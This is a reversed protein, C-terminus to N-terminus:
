RNIKRSIVNEGIPIIREKNRKGLVKLTGNQLDLDSTKLNVLEARRIGTAYFLTVIIKDRNGEFSDEFEVKHLLTDLNDHTLFVPLLKSTRPAVVKLMPNATLLGLKLCFRYFSKLTSLKRNISRSSIKHDILEILWSRIITHDALLLDSISYQKQLFDSFDNLDSQYALVTHASYRKEFQLYDIYKDKLM